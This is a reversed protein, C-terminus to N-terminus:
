RYPGLDPLHLARRALRGARSAATVDALWAAAARDVREVPTASVVLSATVLKRNAVILAQVPPQVSAPWRATQLADNARRLAALSKRAGAAITRQSSATSLGYLRASFPRLTADLPLIIRLYRAAAPSVVAPEISFSGHRLPTPAFYRGGVSMWTSALRGAAPVTSNVSVHQFVIKSHEAYPAPKGIPGPDEQIWGAQAFPAAAEESTSFGRHEGTTADVIRLNWRQHRLRIQATVEDGPRVQFLRTPLYHRTTDTWFAYYSGGSRFQRESVGLQIFQKTQSQASIWGGVQADRGGFIRPVRWSAAVSHVSGRWLYGAQAGFAWPRSGPGTLPVAIFVLIALLAAALVPM